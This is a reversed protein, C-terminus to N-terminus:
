LNSLSSTAVQAVAGNADTVFAVVTLAAPEWREHETNRVTISHTFTRHIYQEFQEPQGDLPTVAARFVNNHVYDQIIKNGTTRQRAVIGSETIWLHLRGNIDQRPEVTTAIEITSGDASLTADVKLDTAPATAIQNYVATAWDNHGLVGSNRNIVGAPWSQINWSDNLQQGETTMLGIYGSPFDTREVPIGFAGAHISVAVVADGYQEQLQEIVEHADPCNICNQGTFDEILVVRNVEAAEVPVLRDDSAVPNCSVAAIAPIIITLLQKLKNNM